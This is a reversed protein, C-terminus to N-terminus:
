STEPDKEAFIASCYRNKPHTMQISYYTYRKVLLVQMKWATNSRPPGVRKNGNTYFQWLFSSDIRQLWGHINKAFACEKRVYGRLVIESRGVRNTDDGEGWGRGSMVDLFRLENASRM